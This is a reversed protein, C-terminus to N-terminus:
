YNRAFPTEANRWVCDPVMERAPEEFRELLEWGAGTWIARWLAMDTDWMAAIIEERPMHTYKCRKGDKSAITIPWQKQDPDKPIGVIVFVLEEIRTQETM